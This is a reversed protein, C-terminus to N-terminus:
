FDGISYNAMVTPHMLFIESLLDKRRSKGTRRCFFCFLFLFLFVASLCACVWSLADRLIAFSDNAEKLIGRAM